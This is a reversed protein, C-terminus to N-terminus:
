ARPTNIWYASWVDVVGGQSTCSRPVIQSVVSTDPFARDPMVIVNMPHLTLRYLPNGMAPWTDPVPFSLPLYYEATIGTVQDAGYLGAVKAGDVGGSFTVTTSIHGGFPPYGLFCAIASYGVPLTVPGDFTVTWPVNVPTAGSVTGTMRGTFSGTCDDRLGTGCPVTPLTATGNLTVSGAVRELADAPSPLLLAVFMAAVVPFRRM